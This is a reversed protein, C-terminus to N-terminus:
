RRFAIFQNQVTLGAVPLEQKSVPDVFFVNYTTTVVGSAAGGTQTATMTSGVPRLVRPQGNSCRYLIEADCSVASAAFTTLSASGDFRCTLGTTASRITASVDNATQTLTITGQDAPPTALTARLDDGVCEGGAVSATTMTGAWTGSFQGAFPAEASTPSTLDEGCGAAALCVLLVAGGIVGRRM